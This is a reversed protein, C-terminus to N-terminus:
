LQEVERIFEVLRRWEAWASDRERRACRRSHCADRVEALLEFPVYAKRLRGNERFFRYHYPGHLTGHRCRCNPRNCRVWQIHVTGPLTKPLSELRKRKM